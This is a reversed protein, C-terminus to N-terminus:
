CHKLTVPVYGLVVKNYLHNVVVSTSNSSSIITSADMIDTVIIIGIGIVFTGIFIVIVIINM